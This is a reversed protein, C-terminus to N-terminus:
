RQWQVRVMYEDQGYRIEFEGHHAHKLAEAIRQPSHIDTTTVVVQDAAEDVAMIRHMPHQARERTGVNHVLALLEVRHANFYTGALTMSGAPLRDLTRRCAPCRTRRTTFCDM